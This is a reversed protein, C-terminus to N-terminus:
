EPEEPLGLERMWRRTAAEDLHVDRNPEATRPIRRADLALHSLFRDGPLVQAGHRRAAAQVARDNSVVVHQRAHSSTQLLSEIVADASTAGTWRLTIRGHHTLAQEGPRSGDCVLTTDGRAYRSRQILQALEAPEGIAMEPPLVGTVHLVNCADVLLRM